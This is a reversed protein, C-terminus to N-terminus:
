KAQRRVKKAAAKKKVPKDKKVSAKKKAVIPAKKRVPLVAKVKLSPAIKMEAPAAEAIEIGFIESLNAELGSDSATGTVATASVASILETHDVGRLLFLLEPQTDLRAGVGYLVASLHKCLGAYDPCSCDLKIETPKPFLGSTRHSIIEMVSKSFKGQLLEVLSDIKGSCEEKIENWAKGPLPEIHIHGHYHESGM